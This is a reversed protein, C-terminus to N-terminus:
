KSASAGQMRAIHEDTTHCLVAVLVATVVSGTFANGAMDKYLPDTAAGADLADELMKLPFGTLMMQEIGYMPRQERDDFFMWVKNGPILSAITGYSRFMREISQGIDLGTLDPSERQAVGLCTQERTPLLPFWRSSRTAQAPVCKSLSLQRQECYALTKAQWTMKGEQDGKCNAKFNYFLENHLPHSKPLLFDKLPLPKDTAMRQVQGRNPWLQLALHWGSASM